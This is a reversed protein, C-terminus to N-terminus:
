MLCLYCESLETWLKLNNTAYSIAAHPHTSCTDVRASSFMTALHVSSKGYVIEETQEQSDALQRFSILPARKSSTRARTKVLLSPRFLSTVSSNEVQNAKELPTSLGNTSGM